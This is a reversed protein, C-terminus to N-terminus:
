AKPKGAKRPEGEGAAPAYRCAFVQAGTGCALKACGVLQAKPAVMLAYNDCAGSRRCTGTSRDFDAQGATWQAVVYSAAIDQSVVAGDIRRLPAVWHMALGERVAMRRIASVGCSAAIGAEVTARAQGALESSWALSAVGAKQRTENQRVLM